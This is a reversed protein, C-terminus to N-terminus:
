EWQKDRLIESITKVDPLVDVQLIDKLNFFKNGMLANPTKKSFNAEFFHEVLFVVSEEYFVKKEKSENLALQILNINEDKVKKLSKQISIEENYKSSFYIINDIKGIAAISKNKYLGIYTHPRYENKIHHFYTNFKMNIDFSKLSQVTRMINKSNEFFNSKFKNQFSNKGINGYEQYMLSAESLSINFLIMFYQIIRIPEMHEANKLLAILDRIDEDFESFSATIAKITNRKLNFKKSAIFIKELKDVEFNYQNNM